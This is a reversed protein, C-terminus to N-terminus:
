PPPGFFREGDFHILHDPREGIWVETEWAIDAAFRKFTAFDLFASVYVRGAPCDTFMDELELRRKPTVPGHSTVAEILLLWNRAADFLVIDPLKDHATVSVGLAAFQAEDFVLLKRDTDGLYLVTAGGAFHPGFENIIAAQLRNHDGASLSYAQGNVTLPVRHIETRRQYRALLAGRDAIFVAVADAWNEMGFQHLVNLVEGTLAYHTLPSNTPLSPDDPNRVVLGAQVFQHIVQRRVTERTNEAYSRGYLREIEGLIDHIRLSPRTAQPWPTDEAVQALALLTLAAMENQQASPLGLEALIAQAEAIRGM